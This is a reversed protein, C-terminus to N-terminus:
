RSTQREKRGERRETAFGKRKWTDLETSHRCSEIFFIPLDLGGQTCKYVEM